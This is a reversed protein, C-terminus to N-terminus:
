IGRDHNRQDKRAPLAKVKVPLQNMAMCSLCGVCNGLTNSIIDDIDFWGLGFAYQICEILLSFIVGQLIVWMGKKHWFLKKQLYGFPVFLLVNLGIYQFSYSFGLLMERLTLKGDKLYVAMNLPLANLAESVTLFPVLQATRVPNFSRFFTYHLLYSYM